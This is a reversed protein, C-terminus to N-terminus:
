HGCCLMRVSNGNALSLIVEDPKAELRVVAVGIRGGLEHADALVEGPLWAFLWPSRGALSAAGHLRPSTNPTATM